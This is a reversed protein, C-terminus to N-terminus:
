KTPISPKGNKKARNALPQQDQPKNSEYKILGLRAAAQLIADIQMWQKGTTLKSHNDAATQMAKRIKTLAIISLDADPNALKWSKCPTNNIAEARKNMEAYFAKEQHRGNELQSLKKPTIIWSLILQGDMYEAQILRSPDAHPTIEVKGNDLHKISEYYGIIFDLNNIIRKAAPKLCPADLMAQLIQSAPALQWTALTIKAIQKQIEHLVRDATCQLDSANQVMALTEAIAQDLEAQTLANEVAEAAQTQTENMSDLTRAANGNEAAQTM